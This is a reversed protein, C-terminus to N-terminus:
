RRYEELFLEGQGVGGSTGSVARLYLDVKEGFRLPSLATPDRNPAITANVTGTGAPFFDEMKIATETGSPDHSYLYFDTSQTRASFRGGRVEYKKGAPVTIMGSTAANAGVPIKIWTTTLADPVGDTIAAGTQYVYIDGANTLGTGATLVYAAFVRLFTATTEVATRGNLTKDESIPLYSSDLGIIRITLAGTGVPAGDDDTSSSSVQLKGAAGFSSFTLLNSVENLNEMSTGIALNRGWLRVCPGSYDYIGM